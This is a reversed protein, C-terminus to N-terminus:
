LKGRRGREEVMKGDAMEGPRYIEVTVPPRVGEREGHAALEGRGVVRAGATTREGGTALWPVLAHRGRKGATTLCTV